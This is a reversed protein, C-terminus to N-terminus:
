RQSSGPAIALRPAPLGGETSFNESLLPGYSEERAVEALPFNKGPCETSRIDRHGVVNETTIHYEHKLTQVLRKVAKFQAPSPASHEFNGVLCVGIGHQNYDKNSSGAHAGHLQERWRFTPEIEGDGMGKGNGIVFHYGVGLWPNGSKDKKKRHEEDISEVSGSESATHHVVIYKWDRLKGAPKWPNSEPLKPLLGGTTPGPGFYPTPAPQYGPSISATPPLAASGSCGLVLGGATLFLLLLCCSRPLVM